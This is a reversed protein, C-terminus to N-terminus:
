WHALALEFTQLDDACLDVAAAATLVTQILALEAPTRPAIAAGNEAAVYEPTQEDSRATALQALLWGLRVVEPLAPQADTLVAEIRVSADGPHADGGGGLVPYVLLVDARDLSWKDGIATQLRQLLGPGRAEWQQRLPGARLEMEECFRPVAPAYAALLETLHVALRAVDAHLSTTDAPDTGDAFVEIAAEVLEHPDGIRSALATLRRWTTRRPLGAATMSDHIAAAPAAVAAAISGATLRCGRAAAEAAHLASTELPTQWDLTCTV